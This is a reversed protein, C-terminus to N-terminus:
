VPNFVFPYNVNVPKGGRPKPFKWRKIKGTVCSKMLTDRISSASIKASGVRGNSEVRFKVKIKGSSSPSRQLLQEYCHRIQNLNARIVALVENQTLGGNIIPDGEPVEITPRGRGKKGFGSGLGAGGIGGTGGRGGGRGGSGRGFNKALEGAGAIGLSSGTKIGGMGYTKSASGSGGGAGGASNQFNTKIAGPGSKKLISGVGIGLKNLNIGSAKNNKVGKVGKVSISKNGKIAGGTQRMGAGKPGGTKIAKIKSKQGALKFNPKKAGTSAMRKPKVPTPRKIPRNSKKNQLTQIPKKAIKVKNVKKPQPKVKEVPKVPKVPKPKPKPPLPPPPQKKEVLKQEPKPKPKPEPKPPEYKKPVNILTWADDPDLEKEKPTAMWIFPVTLIYIITALALLSSFMPDKSRNPPLQISPQKVFMLFYRIAGHKIKVIDRKGLNVKKKEGSIKLTKGDKRIRADMDQTLAVRYGNQTLHALTHEPSKESGGGLFHSKNPDGITVHDYNKYGNHFLEVELVTNGWYSVVELVNGTPRAQRPNFLVEENGGQQATSPTTASLQTEPRATQSTQTTVNLTTRELEQTQQNLNKPIETQPQDQTKVEIDTPPVFGPNENPLSISGENNLPTGEEYVFLDISGITIKDGVALFNEVDITQGNLKVGTDSGLDTLLYKGNEMIEVMAHIPEVNEARLVIENSLLTGILLRDSSVPTCKEAQNPLSYRIELSM